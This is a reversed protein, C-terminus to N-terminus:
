EYFDHDFYDLIVLSEVFLVHGFYKSYFKNGLLICKLPFIIPLVQVIYLFM